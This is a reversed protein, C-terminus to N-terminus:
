NMLIELEGFLREAKIGQKRCEEVLRNSEIIPNSQETYRTRMVYNLWPEMGMAYVYVERCNLQRVIEM